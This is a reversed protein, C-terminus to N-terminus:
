AAGTRKKLVRGHLWEGLRRLLCFLAFCMMFFGTTGLSVCLVYITQAVPYGVMGEVAVRLSELPPINCRYMNAYNTKLVQAMIGSAACFCLIFILCSLGEGRKPPEYLRLGVVLMVSWLALNHFAVTHFSLFDETNFFNEINGASYILNPYILMFLLLSAGTTAAVTMVKGRHKGNYFAAAPLTFLFLSCFHLPIHYLDYGRSISYVQKMVELVLLIVAIVQFPIMRVKRSKKGITLQLVATLVLMVAIAPLLTMAHQPTWLEM